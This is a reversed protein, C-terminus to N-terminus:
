PPTALQKRHHLNFFRDLEGQSLDSSFNGAYAAPSADDFLTYLFTANEQLLMLDKDFISYLRALSGEQLHILHRLRTSVERMTPEDPWGFAREELRDLEEQVFVLFEFDDASIQKM